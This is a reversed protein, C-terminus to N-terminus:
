TMSNRDMELYIPIWFVLRGSTVLHKAAFKVLDIFIESLMYKTHQPIRKLINNSNNDVLDLKLSTEFNVELDNQDIKSEKIGETLNKKSSKKGIKKAKERIGYPPDTIIAEFKFKENLYRTSFDAILIDIYKNELGYQRLNNYINEDKSRYKQGMRSSLGLFFNEEHSKFVIWAKILILNMKGRAHIMNFDLDAGLVHAGFHAAGVLLSGTGVFPDYVLFNSKVQGMNAMVLSLLPDM